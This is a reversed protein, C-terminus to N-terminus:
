EELEAVLETPPEIEQTATADSRLQCHQFCNKITTSQVDQKWAAIANQIGDLLNIKKPRCCQKWDKVATPQQISPPLLGQIHSHNWCRVTSNELHHKATPLAINHEETSHQVEGSRCRQHACQLQRPATDGEMWGHASWFGNAVTQLRETDDLCKQQRPVQLRPQRHQHEQLLSPSVVQQHDLIAIQWVQWRQLMYHHHHAGQEAQLRRATQHCALQRSAYPLFLRTEDMNYIDAFAYQDLITRIRPLSEEIIEM